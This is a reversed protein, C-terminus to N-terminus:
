KKLLNLWEIMKLRDADVVVELDEINKTSLSDKRTVRWKKIGFYKIIRQMMYWASKQTIGLQKALEVSSVKHKEMAILWIAIYWKRLSIRSNHFVTNTKANFYKGTDRCKYKNGSCFYVKSNPSFPSTVIGNWRLKELHEICTQEDPFAKTFDDSITATM